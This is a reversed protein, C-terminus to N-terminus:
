QVPVNPAAGSSGRAELEAALLSSGVPLLGALRRHASMSPRQRCAAASAAARVLGLKAVKGGM